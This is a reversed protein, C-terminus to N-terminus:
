QEYRVSRCNLEQQTRPITTHATVGGMDRGYRRISRVSMPHGVKEEIVEKLEPYDIAVHSRNARRIPKLILKNVQQPTIRAMRGQGTQRELSAATGNWSSYWKALLSSGGLINYRQALRAFSHSRDGAVYQSLIEHKVHAPSPLQGYPVM